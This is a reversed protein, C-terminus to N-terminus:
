FWVAGARLFLFGFVVVLPHARALSRALPVLFNNALLSGLAYLGSNARKLFLSNALPKFKNNLRLVCAVRRAVHKRGHRFQNAANFARASAKRLFKQTRWMVAVNALGDARM